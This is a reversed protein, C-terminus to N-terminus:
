ESVRRVRRSISTLVEYPITGAAKAQTWPDLGEGFIRAWDGVATSADCEIASLDMSVVGLFRRRKGGLLVRGGSEGIGSNMRHLGDAYGASLIAVEVPAPASGKERSGVRFHAGYGISEGPKVQRRAAVQYRLEMAPMLGRAPAGPWPPVGYLSIGPRVVDTWGELKFERANWISGSNALHFLTDTWAGKVAGTIGRFVELQKKTLPHAPDEAVAMHTAVGEPRWEGPKEELQALLQGVLGASMGLRNMGTNFKLHYKLREPWKGKFFRRWDEDSVITPTIGFRECYQGKEESWNAAGSLAMVRIKRGKAGLAERIERAEDLSAVGFGYLNRAQVLARAAYVAGHGYADAKIMPLIAQDGVQEQIVKFNERLAKASIVAEARDFRATLPANSNEFSDDDFAGPERDRTAAPRLKAKASLKVWNSNKSESDM